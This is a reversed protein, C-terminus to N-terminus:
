AYVVNMINYNADITTTKTLPVNAPVDGTMVSTIVGPTRTDTTITISTTTGTSYVTIVLKKNTADITHPYSSINKYIQEYTIGTLSNLLASDIVAQGSPTTTTTTTTTAPPTYLTYNNTAGTIVSKYTTTINDVTTPTTQNLVITYPNTNINVLGNNSVAM